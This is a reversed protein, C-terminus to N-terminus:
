KKLKKLKQKIGERDCLPNLSAVLLRLVESQNKFGSLIEISNKDMLYNKRLKM